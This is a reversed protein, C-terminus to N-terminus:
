PLHKTLRFGNKVYGIREYFAHARTRHFASMVAIRKAGLGRAWSEVRAVLMPGIGENRAGDKVVLTTLLAAPETAHIMPIVHATILGIAKGAREAVLALANPFQAMRELRGPIEAADSPYGLEDLLIALAQTDAASADRLVIDAAVDPAIQSVRFVGRRLSLPGGM